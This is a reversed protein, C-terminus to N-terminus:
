ILHLHALVALVAGAMLAAVVDDAMIGIGGHLREAHRIPWPKWIDFLRFLAFAAVYALLSMPAFACAIWQGALEDIVCEKPDTSGTRTAYLETAWAGIALALLGCALIAFRGGNWGILWALPMAVASAITGPAHRAYGIGFLTAIARSPNM